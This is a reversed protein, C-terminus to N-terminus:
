FEVDEGGYSVTEGSYQVLEAPAAAGRDNITIQAIFLDGAVVGEDPYGMPYPTSADGSSTANGTAIYAPMIRTAPASEFAGIKLRIERGDAFFDNVLTDLRGDANNLEIEGFATEILSGFTEDDSTGLRREIQLGRNIRGPIFTDPLMDTSRTAFSRSAFRDTVTQTAVGFGALLASLPFTSLPRTGLM